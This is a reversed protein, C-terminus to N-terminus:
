VVWSPKGKTTLREDTFNAAASRRAKVLWLGILVALSRGWCLVVCRGHFTFDVTLFALDEGVCFESDNKQFVPPWRCSRLKM